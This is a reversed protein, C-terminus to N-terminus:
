QGGSVIGNFVSSLQECLANIAVQNNQQFPDIGGTFLCHTAQNLSTMAQQGLAMSSFFATFPVESFRNGTLRCTFGVASVDALMVVSQETVFENGEVAVDDFTALFCTIGAAPPPTVRPKFTVQNNEFLIRGDFLIRPTTLVQEPSPPDATLNTNVILDLSPEQGALFYSAGLNVVSIPQTFLRAPNQRFATCTLANDSIFMAGIGYIFLPQGSPCLVTNGRVTIAPDGRPVILSPLEPNGGPVTFTEPFIGIGIIGGQYTGAGAGQRSDTAVGNGEIHNDDLELAFCEAFYMGCAPIQGNGNEVIQNGRVRVRHSQQMVIGGVALSNFPKVAAVRACQSIHNGAITVDEVDGADEDGDLATAVGSNNMRAIINDLIRVGVVGTRDDVVGIEAAVGGLAIGPGNGNAITNGRISVGASGDAVHIGAGRIDNGAIELGDSQLRMAERPGRTELHSREIRLDAARRAQIPVVEVGEIWIDEFAVGSASDVNFVANPGRGIVKALAGCGEITVDDRNIVLTARVEHTGPRLCIRVPGDVTAVAALAAQISPHDGGVGATVTCCCCSRLKTLPPFKPPCLGIDAAVTDGGVHWTVLALPCYFHEIGEPPQPTSPFEPQGTATRAPFTWYDGTHFGAGSFEIQLGDELVFPGPAIPIADSPQDWRRVKPHAETSHASVSKSLTLERNAEDIGVIQALTGPVGALESRDGLVEVWDGFRFNLVQDRGLRSVRVKTPQGAPFETVPFVISGNDRSWKFTAPGPTTADHIEVRYLRNELGRFGGAPAIACLDDGPPVPVVSAKMLGGSAAPMPATDCTLPGEVRPGQTIRVQFITQVRTTTDPGGLAVERISPDEIATIHREWVDLFVSDTRGDVPNLAPPDPLLPQTLYTTAAPLEVLLGHAYFRGASITLDPDTGTGGLAIEFGPADIPVGCEGIVDVRTTRDLRDFIDNLENWDADLDVRGQQKLVKTYRKDPRFTFRTFDGKM